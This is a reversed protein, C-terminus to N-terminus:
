RVKKTRDEARFEVAAGDVDVWDKAPDSRLGFVTGVKALQVRRAGPGGVRVTLTHLTEDVITGQLGVIGADNAKRVVAELGIFEGKGVERARGQLKPVARKM